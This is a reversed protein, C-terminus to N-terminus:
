LGLVLKAISNRQVESSGAYITAGRQNLYKSTAILGYEPAITSVNNGVEYAEKQYVAGYYGIANMTLELMEQILESGRLKFISAAPGPNQGTSLASMVRKETM